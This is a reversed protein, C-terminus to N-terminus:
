DVSFALTELVEGDEDQIEVEWDGTQSVTMQAWTRWGWSEGVDLDFTHLENDDVKWVVSLTTDGDPNQVKMWANVSDGESFSDSTGNPKRDDVDAATEAELVALEGGAPADDGADDDDAFVPSSALVFATVVFVFLSKSRYKM